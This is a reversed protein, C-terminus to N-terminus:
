FALKMGFTALRERAGSAHIGYSADFYLREPIATWRAAVQAWPSNRNDGYIEGMLDLPGLAGQREAALAWTVRTNRDQHSHLLGANAHLLWAGYPVTLVGKVEAHTYDLYDTQVRGSQLTYALALRPLSQDASGIATKGSLSTYNSTSQANIERSAALALQTQRGIGCGIQTAGLAIRPHTQRGPFSEWECETQALVGADETVLPRGAWASTSLFVFAALLVSHLRGCRLRFNTPNHM